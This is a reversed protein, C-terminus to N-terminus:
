CLFRFENTIRQESRGDFHARQIAMCEKRPVAFLSRVANRIEEISCTGWEGVGQACGSELLSRYLNKQNAAVTGVLLRGGVCCAEMAVTSATTILLSATSMQDVMGQATAGQIWEVPIRSRDAETRLRATEQFANGTVIRIRTIADMSQCAMLIRFTIGMPDAGGMCILVENDMAEGPVRGTAERFERRLMCYSFGACIRTQPEAQYTALSPLVGHNIILDAHYYGEILDDVVVLSRTLKRLELRYQDNFSYGDLIVIDSSRILQQYIPWEDEGEFEIVRGRALFAKRSEPQTDKRTLLVPEGMHQLMEALAFVRSLHGLGIAPNGDARFILQRGPDPM